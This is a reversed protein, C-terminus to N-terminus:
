STEVWKALLEEVLQSLERGRNERLLAIKVATHTERRVYTTLGVFEPNNKKGNAPRGRKVEPELETQSQKILVAKSPLSNIGKEVLKKAEKQVSTKPKSVNERYEAEMETPENRTQFIRDYKSM